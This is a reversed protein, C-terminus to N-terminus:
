QSQTTSIKDNSICNEKFRKKFTIKYRYCKMLDNPYVFSDGHNDLLM